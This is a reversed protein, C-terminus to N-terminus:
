TTRPWVFVLVNGPVRYDPNREPNFMDRGGTQIFNTVRM